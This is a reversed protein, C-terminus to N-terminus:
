AIKLTKKSHDIVQNLRLRASKVFEGEGGGNLILYM